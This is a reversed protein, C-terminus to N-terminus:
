ARVDNDGELFTAIAERIISSQSRYQSKAAKELSNKLDVPLRVQLQIQDTTADSQNTSMGFCKIFM